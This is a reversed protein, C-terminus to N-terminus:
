LRHCNGGSDCDTLRLGLSVGLHDCLSFDVGRDIHLWCSTDPDGCLGNIASLGLLVGQSGCLGLRQGGDVGISLSEDVCSCFSNSLSLRRKHCRSFHFGNDVGNGIGGYPDARLDNIVHTEEKTMKTIAGIEVDQEISGYKLESM